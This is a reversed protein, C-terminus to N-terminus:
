LHCTSCIPEYPQRRINWHKCIEIRIREKLCPPGLATNAVHFGVRQDFNLYDSIKKVTKIKTYMPKEFCVQRSDRVAALVEEMEQWSSGRMWRKALRAADHASAETGGIPHTERKNLNAESELSEYLISLETRVALLRETTRFVEGREMFLSARPHNYIARNVLSRMARHRWNDQYEFDVEKRHVQVGHTRRSCAATLERNPTVIAAYALLAM